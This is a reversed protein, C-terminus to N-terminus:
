SPFNKLLATTDTSRTKGDLRRHEGMSFTERTGLKFGCQLGILPKGGGMKKNKYRFFGFAVRDNYWLFYKAKGGRPM